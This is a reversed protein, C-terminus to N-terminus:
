NLYENEMIAIGVEPDKDVFEYISGSGSESTWFMRGDEIETFTASYMNTEGGISDDWKVPVEYYVTNVGNDVRVFDQATFTGMYEGGRLWGVIIEYSDDGKDTIKIFEYGHSSYENGAKDWVGVLTDATINEPDIVTEEGSLQTYLQELSVTGDNEGYEEFINIISYTQMYNLYEYFTKSEGNMVSNADTIAGNSENSTYEFSLDDALTSEENEYLYIERKGWRLVLDGYEGFESFMMIYREGGKELIHIGGSPGGAQAYFEYDVFLPVVAGDSITYISAAFYPYNGTEVTYLMILEDVGNGDIDILAGKNRYMDSRGLMTEKIKEDKTYLSYDVNEIQVSDNQEPDIGQIADTQTVEFDLAGQVALDASLLYYSYDDQIINEEGLEASDVIIQKVNAGSLSPNAGFLMAAVGSVHPTAMSTGSQNEYGNDQFTSYIEVGPAALDVREGACSSSAMAYGDGSIGASGVIIIRDAVRPDDVNAMIDFDALVGGSEVRLAIEDERGLYRAFPSNEDRDESQLYDEFDSLAYYGYLANEDDEDAAFYEYANGYLNGASKCIVFEYGADVYAGLIRELQSSFEDTARIAAENGRSAAFQLDNISISMNIVKCGEHVILNTLGTILLQESAYGHNAFANVSVGYLKANPAVGSIGEDNDFTAGITGAVHTGHTSVEASLEDVFALATDEYAIDVHSLFATDMIGVNVDAMADRSDWAVPAGIAEVGWNTGSVDGGWEEAWESDSPFYDSSVRFVRNPSVGIAYEVRLENEIEELETLSYSKDFLIQYNNVAEVYGVVEGGYQSAVNEVEELSIEEEFTLILENDIYAIGQDVSMKEYDSQYVLIGDSVQATESTNPQLVFVLTVALAIALVTILSITKKNKRKKM